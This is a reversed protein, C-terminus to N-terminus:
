SPSKRTRSDCPDGPCYTSVPICLLEFFCKSRTSGSPITLLNIYKNSKSIWVYYSLIGLKWVYHKEEYKELNACFVTGKIRYTM